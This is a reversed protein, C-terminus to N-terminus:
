GAHNRLARADVSRGLCRSGAPALSIQLPASARLVELTVHTVNRGAKMFIRQELLVDAFSIRWSPIGERLQFSEIHEFSRPHVTGDDFENASLHYWRGLYLASIELKAVLVVREVPPSLAAVLIGHYRRTNAGAVTESAFGGLGNAVLWERRSAIQWDGTTERGMAFSQESSNPEPNVM